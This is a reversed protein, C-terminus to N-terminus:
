QTTGGSPAFDYSLGISAILGSYLGFHYDFSAGVSVHWPGSLLIVGAETSIFPNPSYASFTSLFSFFYGGSIGVTASLWPLLDFRLGSGLSASIVSVWMPVNARVFDGDLGLGGSVYVLPLFPLRYQVGLYLSVGTEFLQTSAGLPITLGPTVQMSLLSLTQSPPSTVEAAVETSQVEAFMLAPLGVLLLVFTLKKV